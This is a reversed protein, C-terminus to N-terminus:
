DKNQAKFIAYNATIKPGVEITIKMVPDGDVWVPLTINDPLPVKAEKYASIARAVIDSASEWLKHMPHDTTVKSRLRSKM